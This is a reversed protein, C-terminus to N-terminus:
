RQLNSSISQEALARKASSMGPGLSASLNLPEVHRKVLLVAIPVELASSTEAVLCKRGDALIEVVDVVRLHGIAREGLLSLFLDLKAGLAFEAVLHRLAVVVLNAMERIPAISASM